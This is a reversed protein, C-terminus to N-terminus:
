CPIGGHGEEQAAPVAPVLHEEVIHVVHAGPADAGHALTSAEVAPLLDVVRADLDQCGAEPLAIILLSDHLLVLALAGHDQFRPLSARGSRQQKHERRCNPHQVLKPKWTGRIKTPAQRPEAAASLLKCHKGRRYLIAEM